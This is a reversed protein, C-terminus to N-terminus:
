LQRPTTLSNQAFWSENNKQFYIRLTYFINTHLFTWVAWPIDADLVRLHTLHFIFRGTSGLLASYFVPAVNRNGVCYHSQWNPVMWCWDHVTHLWKGPSSISGAWVQKTWIMDLRSSFPAKWGCLGLQLQNWPKFLDSHRVSCTGIAWIM